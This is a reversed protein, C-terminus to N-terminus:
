SEIVDAYPALEAWAALIEEVLASWGDGIDAELTVEGIEVRVSWGPKGPIVLAEFVTWCSM